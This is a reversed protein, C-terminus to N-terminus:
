MEAEETQNCVDHLVLEVKDLWAAKSRPKSLVGPSICEREMRVQFREGTYRLQSAQVKRM